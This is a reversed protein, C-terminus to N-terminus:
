RPESGWGVLELVERVGVKMTANRPLEPVSVIRLPVKYAELRSKLWTRLEEESPASGDGAPTVLAVPVGGLRPDPAGVVVASGV